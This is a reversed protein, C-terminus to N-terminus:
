ESLPPLSCNPPKEAIALSCNDSLMLEPSSAGSQASPPFLFDQTTHPPIVTCHNRMNEFFHHNTQKFIM